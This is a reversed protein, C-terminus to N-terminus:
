GTHLDITQLMGFHSTSRPVLMSGADAIGGQIAGAVSPGLSELGSRVLLGGVASGGLLGAGVGLAIRGLGAGVRAGASEIGKRLSSGLSNLGVSLGYGLMSSAGDISSAIQAMGHRHASAGDLLASSVDRGALIISNAIAELGARNDHGADRIAGAIAQGQEALGEKQLRGGVESGWAAMLDRYLRQTAALQASVTQAQEDFGGERYIAQASELHSISERLYSAYLQPSGLVNPDVARSSRSIRLHSLAIFEKSRLFEFWALAVYLDLWRERNVSGANASGRELHAMGIEHGVQACAEAMEIEALIWFCTLLKRIVPDSYDGRELSSTGADHLRHATKLALETAVASRTRLDAISAESATGAECDIEALRLSRRLRGLSIPGLVNSSDCLPCTFVGISGVWRHDCSACRFMAVALKLDSAAGKPNGKAPEFADDNM